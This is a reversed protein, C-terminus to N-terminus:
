FQANHPRIQQITSMSNFIIETNCEIIHFYHLKNKLESIAPM